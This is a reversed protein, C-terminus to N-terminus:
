GSPLFCSNNCFKWDNHNRAKESEGPMSTQRNLSHNWTCRCQQISPWPGLRVVLQYTDTEPTPIKWPLRYKVTIQLRSNVSFCGLGIYGIGQLAVNGYKALYVHRSSYVAGWSKLKGPWIESFVSGIGIFNGVSLRLTNM